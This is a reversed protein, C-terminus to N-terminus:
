IKDNKKKKEIRAPRTYIPCPVLWYPCLAAGESIPRAAVSTIRIAPFTDRYISANIFRAMRLIYRVNISLLHAHLILKVNGIRTSRLGVTTRARQTASQAPPQDSQRPGAEERLAGPGSLARVARRPGAVVAGGTVISQSRHCHRGQGLHPALRKRGATRLGQGAPM